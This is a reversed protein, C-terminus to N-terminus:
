LWVNLVFWGLVILAWGLAALGVALIFPAVRRRSSRSREGITMVSRQTM